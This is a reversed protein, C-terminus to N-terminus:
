PETRPTVNKPNAEVDHTYDMIQSREFMERLRDPRAVGDLGGERQLVDSSM